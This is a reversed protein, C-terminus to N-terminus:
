KLMEKRQVHVHPHCVRAVLAASDKLAHTPSPVATHSRGNSGVRRMGSAGGAMGPSHDPIRRSVGNMDGVRGRMKWYISFNCLNMDAIRMRHLELKSLTM